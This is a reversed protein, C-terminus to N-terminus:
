KKEPLKSKKELIESELKSKEATLEQNLITLKEQYRKAKTTAQSLYLETKKIKELKKKEMRALKRELKYVEKRIAKQAHPDLEKKVVLPEPAPPAPLEKPPEPQIEVVTQAVPVSKQIEAIPSPAMVHKLGIAGIVFVGMSIGWIFPTKM